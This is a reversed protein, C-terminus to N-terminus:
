NRKSGLTPPRKGHQCERRYKSPQIDFHKKFQKAFKTRSDLKDTILWLSHKGCFKNNQLDAWYQESKQIVELNTTVYCTPNNNALFSKGIFLQRNQIPDEIAVPGLHSPLNTRILYEILKPDNGIIIKFNSM